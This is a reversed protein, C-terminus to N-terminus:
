ESVLVLLHKALAIAESRQVIGLKSYCNRIHTKITAPSVALENSIQENTLGGYILALVEWERSTLPNLRVLEPLHPHNFLKEVFAEDFAPIQHHQAKNLSQLLMKAQAVPLNEFDKHNVLLHRLSGALHESSQLFPTIFHTKQSLDVAECLKELAYGQEGNAYLLEYQLLCLQNLEGLLQSHFASVALRECLHLAKKHNGLMFHAFAFNRWQLQGFRNNESDPVYARSLWLAIEDFNQTAQWFLLRVRDANSIADIHYHHASMLQNIKEIHQKANSIDHQILAIHALLTTCQLTGKENNLVCIGELAATKADEFKAWHFLIQGKLHLVHEYMPVNQLHNNLVFAQSKELLEFGAQMFGQEIFIEAQQVYAWLIHHLTRYKKAMKEAQQLYTLADEFASQCHYVEGIISTAVTRAYRSKEPLVNLANRALHLAKDEEGQNIAVQALLVDFEAQVEQSLPQPNSLFTEYLAAIESQRHQSQALWMKLLMLQPYRKLNEEDLKELSQDLLNLKGQHFLEWGSTLLIQRILDRSQIKEAHFLAEQTQNLSLYALSANQHWQYIVQCPLQQSLNQLFTQFLPHFYFHDNIQQLLNKNKLTTLQHQFNHEGMAELVASSLQKLLSTRQLFQQQTKSLSSFIEQHFYNELYSTYLDLPPNPQETFNAFIMPAIWGKSQNQWHKILDTKQEEEVNPYCETLFKETEQAIFSLDEQSIEILDGTLRYRELNLPIKTRSLLVLSIKSQNLFYQLAQWIHHSKLNESQDLILLAPTIDAREVLQQVGQRFYDRIDFPRQHPIDTIGLSQWFSTAFLEPRNDAHDLLAYYFNQPYDKLYQGILTTKGYGAPATLVTLPLNKGKSLKEMLHPRNLLLKKPLRPFDQFLM